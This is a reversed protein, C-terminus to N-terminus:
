KARAALQRRHSSLDAFAKIPGDLPPILEHFGSHTNRAMKLLSGLLAHASEASEHIVQKLKVTTDGSEDLYRQDVEGGNHEYLHRRRFMVQTKAIEADPMGRCIDIDFWGLFTSRVEKLDHFSKGTLRARRQKTMPVLEVLQKAYQAIFSDFAAVADRVISDPPVGARLRERVEVISRSEFDAFDSRTGCRSCYGFRGLIDNYEDCAGCTFKRQQSEESVYFEPKEASSLTADAVADMDITASGADGTMAKELMAVCHEIYRRQADSLFHIEPAQTACYPCLKPWPGSRWYGSCAPCKHGFRGESDSMVMIPVCQPLPPPTVPEGLGRIDMMAVPVGPPVAYVGVMAMANPRCFEVRLYLSHGGSNNPEFTYTIQGGSHAIESFERSSDM